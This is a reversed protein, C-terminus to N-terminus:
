NRIYESESLGLWELATGALLRQKISDTLDMEEILKGPHQEGLPFPYDSGLAIQEPGMKDLLFAMAKKDHVLSDIYFHKMYSSPLKNNDIACLDPRMKYGHDIRGITFPFAGGGHAFAIKLNPYKELVGGFIISCIARSTEAPMGVLWPLWYKQIDGQGMMEWPHVLISCDLKEAHEFIPQFKKNSLNEGNINSGMEIGLLNLNSICRDMEKIAYDVNQMPITGIGIFKHSEEKCIQAIHDNLFQSLVFCEDDKAWYSFLAPLTSLVQMDIQTDDCDKIRAKHNWCNCDVKRFEIGDKKLMASTDDVRDITLFRSDSFKGTVKNLNEPLIHTHIDVKFM